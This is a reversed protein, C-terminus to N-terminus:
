FNLLRPTQQTYWMNHVFSSTKNYRNFTTCIIHCRTLLHWHHHDWTTVRHHYLLQIDYLYDSLVPQRWTNGTTTEPLLVLSPIITPHRVPLRVARSQWWTNGTTTEPLLVLSLILNSTTCTIWCCLVTALHWRHHDWIVVSTITYHNLTTCTIWCCLVTAM